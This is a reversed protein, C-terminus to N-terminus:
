NNKFKEILAQTIPLDPSPMEYNLLELPKVWKIAQHDNLQITGQFNLVFYAKMEYPTNNHVFHTSMFYHGITAKISFEEFLERQLCQEDTEGNEMKGGPFEWKGFLSDKKARQAILFTTDKENLIIAAIVKKNTLNQM